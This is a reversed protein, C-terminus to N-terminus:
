RQWRRKHKAEQEARLALYEEMPLNPDSIDPAGPNAKGGAVPIVPAPAASIAALTPAVPTTLKAEIRALELAMKMPSLAKVREAETINTGLYHLVKHPSQLEIATNLFVPSVDQGIAGVMTLNSLTTDWSEKYEKKGQDQINNCAETFRQQAAMEQAKVTARREIEDEGLTQTSPDTNPKTSGPNKTELQKLLEANRAEAAVRAAKESDARRVEAYKQATIENIRKQVPDPDATLKNINPDIAAAPDVPDDTTTTAAPGAASPDATTTTTTASTQTPTVEVVPSSVVPQPEGGMVIPSATNTSTSVSVPDM